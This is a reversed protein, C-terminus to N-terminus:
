QDEQGERYAGARRMAAVVEDDSVQDFRHYHAGVANFPHPVSLCLIEDVLPRLDALSDDPAVPVALVIRAPDRAHLGMLAAKVTAGTAIGDDVVIATRGKCDVPALGEMYRARRAEIESLKRAIAADFHGRKLGASRLVDVNFFVHPDTGDVIAGAAFEEHGPVGLKRVMLLDLPARLHEAVPLTEAWGVYRHHVERLLAETHKRVGFM